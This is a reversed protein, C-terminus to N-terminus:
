SRLSPVDVRWDNAIELADKGNHNNVGIYAKIILAVFDENICAAYHLATNGEHDSVLVDAGIELMKKALEYRIGDPVDTMQLLAHLTTKGLYKANLLPRKDLILSAMEWQRFELAKRLLSPSAPRTENIDFRLDAFNLLLKLLSVNGLRVALDVVREQVEPQSEDAMYRKNLDVEDEHEEILHQVLTEWGYLCALWLAHQPSLMPTKEVGKGVKSPSSPVQAKLIHFYNRIWEDDEMAIAVEMDVLCGLKKLERVLRFHKEQLAIKIPTENNFAIEKLSPCLTVLEIAVDISNSQCSIWLATPGALQSSNSSSSISSTILTHPIPSVPTIKVSSLSLCSMTIVPDITSVTFDFAKSHLFRIIDLNNDRGAIHAITWGTLPCHGVLESRHFSKLRDLNGLRAANHVSLFAGKMLLYEVIALSQPDLGHSTSKCEVDKERDFTGSRSSCSSVTRGRDNSSNSIIVTGNRSSQAEKGEDSNHLTHLNNGSFYRSIGDRNNERVACLLSIVDWGTVSKADLRAGYKEVLVMVVDMRKLLAAQMLVTRGHTKPQEARNVDLNCSQLVFEVDQCTNSIDQVTEYLIAYRQDIHEENLYLLEQQKSICVHAHSFDIRSFSIASLDRHRLDLVTKTHRVLELLHELRETAAFGLRCDVVSNLQDLFVVLREQENVDKMQTREKQLEQRLSNLSFLEKSVVEWQDASFMSQNSTQFEDQLSLPADLKQAVLTLQRDIVLLLVEESLVGNRALILSELATFLETKDLRALLSPGMERLWERGFRNLDEIVNITEDTCVINVVRRLETIPIDNLRQGLLSLISEPKNSSEIASFVLCSLHPLCSLTLRVDELDSEATRLKGLVTQFRLTVVSDLINSDIYIVDQLGQVDVLQLPEIICDLFICHRLKNPGFYVNVLNLGTFDITEIYVKSLDIRRKSEHIHQNYTELLNNMSIIYNRVISTREAGATRGRLDDTFQQERLFLISQILPRVKALCFSLSNRIESSSTLTSLFIDNGFILLLELEEILTSTNSRLTNVIRAVRQQESPLKSPSKPTSNFNQKVSTDANSIVNFHAYKQLLTQSEEETLLKKERCKLVVNVQKEQQKYQTILEDIHAPYAMDVAQIESQLM